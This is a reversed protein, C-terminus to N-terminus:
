LLREPLYCTRLLRSKTKYSLPLAISTAYTQPEIGGLAFGLSQDGGTFNEHNELFHCRM